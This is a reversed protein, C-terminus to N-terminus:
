GGEQIILKEFFNEIKLQQKRANFNYLVSKNKIIVHKHVETSGASEIEFSTIESLEDFTKNNSTEEGDSVDETM